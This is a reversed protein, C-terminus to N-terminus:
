LNESGICTGFATLQTGPATLCSQVSIGVFTRLPRLRVFKRLILRQQRHRAPCYSAILGTKKSMSVALRWLLNKTEHM